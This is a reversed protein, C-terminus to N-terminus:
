LLLVLLPQSIHYCDEFEINARLISESYDIAIQKRKKKNMLLFEFSNMISSLRNKKFISLFFSFPKEIFDMFNFLSFFLIIENIDLGYLFMSM